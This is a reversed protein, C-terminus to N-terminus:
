LLRSYKYATGVIMNKLFHVHCSSLSYVVIKRHDPFTDLRSYFRSTMKLIYCSRIKVSKYNRKSGLKHSKHLIRPYRYFYTRAIGQSIAYCIGSCHQRSANGSNYVSEVVMGANRMFQYFPMSVIIKVSRHIIRRIRPQVSCATYVTRQQSYSFSCSIGRQLCHNEFIRLKLSRKVSRVCSYYRFYCSKIFILYTIFYRRHRREDSLIKINCSGTYM